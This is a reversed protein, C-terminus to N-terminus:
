PSSGRGGAGKLEERNGNVNPPSPAEMQSGQPVMKAGRSCEQSERLGARHVRPPGSCSKMLKPTIKPRMKFTKQTGLSSM